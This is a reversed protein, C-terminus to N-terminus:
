IRKTGTHERLLMLTSGPDTGDDDDDTANLGHLVTFGPKRFGDLLFTANM